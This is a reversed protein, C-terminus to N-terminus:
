AYETCGLMVHIRQFALVEVKQTNACVYSLGSACLPPRGLLIDRKLFLMSQPDSIARFGMLIPM